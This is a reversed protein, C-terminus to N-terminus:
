LYYGLINCGRIQENNSSENISIIELKSQRPVFLNFSENGSPADATHNGNQENIIINDNIKVIIGLVNNTSSTIPRGYFPQVIIMSDRLGTNPILNLTIQAPVSIDGFVEGSYSFWKDGSSLLTQASM